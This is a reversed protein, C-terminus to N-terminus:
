NKKMMHTYAQALLETDYIYQLALSILAIGMFIPLCKDLLNRWPHKSKFQNKRKKKENEDYRKFDSCTPFKTYHELIIEKAEDISKSNSLDPSGWLDSAYGDGRTDFKKAYNISSIGKDDFYIRAPFNNSLLWAKLNDAETILHKPVNFCTKNNYLM